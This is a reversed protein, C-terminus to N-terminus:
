IGLLTKHQSLSKKYIRFVSVADGLDRENLDPKYKSLRFPKRTDFGSFRFVLCQDAGIFFSGNVIKITREHLNWHAVNIGQNRIIGVDSVLSLIFDLWRQEFHLGNSIDRFCQNVTKQGWWTLFALAENTKRFGVIGGNYTGAMLVDLEQGINTASVEPFLLHPTIIASNFDLEDFLLNLNGLVLTELKLFLIKKYFNSLLHEIAFPTIAYAFELKSYLKNMNNLIEDELFDASIFNISPYKKELDKFDVKDTVLVIYDVGANHSLFSTATTLAEHLNSRPSITLCARDSNVQMLSIM